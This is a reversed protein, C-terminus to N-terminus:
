NAETVHLDQERMQLVPEPLALLNRLPLPLGATVLRLLINKWLGVFIDVAKLAKYAAEGSSAQFIAENL